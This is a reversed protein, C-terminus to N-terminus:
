RLNKTNREDCKQDESCTFCQEKCREEDPFACLFSESVSTQRSALIREMLVRRNFDPIESSQENCWEHVLNWIQEEEKTM